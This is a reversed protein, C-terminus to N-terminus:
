SLAGGFDIAEAAAKRESNFYPCTSAYGCFKLSCWWSGVPAPHFVGQAVGHMMANLKNLLVRKDADGRTSVLRQVEPRAKDVLVDLVVGAASEGTAKAHAAYYYTLQDSRDVEDQAKRRSATKIDRIQRQDDVLDLKGNLDFDRGPLEIRVFQEVLVPQIAPAVRERYLGTIAVARDVLHGEVKAMGVSAEDETLMLGEAAIRTRVETAAADELVNLPLDEHTAMKQTFNV